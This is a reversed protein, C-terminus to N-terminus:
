AAREFEIADEVEDRRLGYDAALEDLTEGADYRSALVATSVSKRAVVPTGFGVQPDLVITKKPSESPLPLWLFLKAPVSSPDYVVRELHDELMARLILQGGRSLEILESYKDLFLQGAAAKLDRHILLRKIGYEHEAYALASRVAPMSVGHRTRLGRLVHVEVLNNFSLRKDKPDPRHIVAEFHQEPYDLGAM